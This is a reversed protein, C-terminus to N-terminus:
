FLSATSLTRWLIKYHSYKHIGIGQKTTSTCTHLLIKGSQSYCHPDKRIRLPFSCSVMKSQSSARGSSSRRLASYWELLDSRERQRPVVRCITGAPERGSLALFFWPFSTTHLRCCVLCTLVYIICPSPENMSWIFISGTRTYEITFFHMSTCALHICAQM